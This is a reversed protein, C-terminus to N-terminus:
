LHGPITSCKSEVINKYESLLAQAIPRYKPQELLNIDEHPDARLDFLKTPTFHTRKQDSQMIM